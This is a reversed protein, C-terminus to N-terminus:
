LNSSTKSTESFAMSLSIIAHSTFSSSEQQHGCCFCLSVDDNSAQQSEMSAGADAEEPPSPPMKPVWGVEVEERSAPIVVSVDSGGVAAKNFSPEGKQVM